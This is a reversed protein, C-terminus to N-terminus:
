VAFDDGDIGFVGDDRREGDVVAYDDGDTAVVLDESESGFGSADDIKTAAGYSGAEDVSVAMEVLGVGDVADFQAGDGADAVRDGQNAFGGSGALGAFPDGAGSPVFALEGFEAEDVGGVQVFDSGIIRNPQSVSGAVVADCVGESQAEGFNGVFGFVGGAASDIAIGGAM